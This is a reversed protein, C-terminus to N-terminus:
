TVVKHESIFSLILPLNLQRIWFITFADQAALLKGVHLIGAPMYSLHMSTFFPSKITMYTPHNKGTLTIKLLVHGAKMWGWQQDRM